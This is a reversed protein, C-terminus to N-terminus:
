LMVEELDSKILELAQTFQPRDTNLVIHRVKSVLYYGSTFRSTGQGDKDDAGSPFRCRIVDGVSIDSDGYIHIQVINQSIKQAYARTRSIKEALEGTPKDSRGPILKNVSTSRGHNKTFTSPKSSTGTPSTSKFQDAGLNDTYTVERVDGTIIDFQHVQNNLGGGRIQAIVDGYQMQNYAIINRMTVNEGGDKRSTDFFFLKDSDDDKYAQEFLKEITTFHFGKRNEFFCFSSSLYTTSVARQRLYDIIQFPTMRTLVVKEMGATADIFLPKNTELQDELTNKILTSINDTGVLSQNTKSNIILESSVCTITYTLRKNSENVQKNEIGKVRFLFSAPTGKNKPTKFSLKIFEGGLIPFNQLLGISDAIVLEAFMVPSLISEYVDFGVCQTMLSYTREQDESLLVIDVLEVDGPQFKSPSKVNLAEALAAGVTGLLMKEVDAFLNKILSM